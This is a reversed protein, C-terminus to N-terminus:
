RDRGVDELVAEDEVTCVPLIRAVGAYLSQGVDVVDADYVLALTQSTQGWHVDDVVAIRGALRPLKGSPPFVTGHHVEFVHQKERPVRLLDLTRHRITRGCGIVHDYASWDLRRVKPVFVGGGQLPLGWRWRNPEVRLRDEVSGPAGSWFWAGLSLSFAVFADELAGANRLSRGAMCVFRQITPQQARRIGDVELVERTRWSLAVSDGAGLAEALRRVPVAVEAPLGLTGRLAGEVLAAEESQATHSAEWVERLRDRIVLRAMLAAARREDGTARADWGEDPRAARWPRIWYSATKAQMWRLGVTSAGSLWAEFKGDLRSDYTEM